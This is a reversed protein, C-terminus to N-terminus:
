TSMLKTRKEFCNCIYEALQDQVADIKFVESTKKYEKHLKNDTKFQKQINLIFDSRLTDYLNCDDLFHLENEIANCTTCKRKELPTNSYRGKEIQLDHASIRLKCLAMRHRIEKSNILYPELKYSTTVNNYFSYRSIQKNKSNKWYEEYLNELKLMISYKLKKLSLTGQNQWVHSMGISSLINKVFNVWQNNKLHENNIMDFYTQKILSNDKSETTHIWFSITQCIMDFSIPYRGLEALVPMKM